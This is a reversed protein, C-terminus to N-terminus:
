SQEPFTQLVPAFEKLQQKGKGLELLNKEKASGSWTSDISICISSHKGVVEANPPHLPHMTEFIVQM